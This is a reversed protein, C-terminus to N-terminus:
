LFPYDLISSEKKRQKEGMTIKKGTQSQKISLKYFYDNYKTETGLSIKKFSFRCIIFIDASYYIELHKKQISM